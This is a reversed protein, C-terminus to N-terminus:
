KKKKLKERSLYERTQGYLNTLSSPGKFDRIQESIFQHLQDKTAFIEHKYSDKSVQTFNKFGKERLWRNLAYFGQEGLDRRAQEVTIYEGSAM